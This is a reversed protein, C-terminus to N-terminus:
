LIIFYFDTVQGGKRGFVYLCMAPIVKYEIFNEISPITCVVEVLAISWSNEYLFFSSCARGRGGFM